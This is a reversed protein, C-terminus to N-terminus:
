LGTPPTDSPLNQGPDRDKRAAAQRERAIELAVKLRQSIDLEGDLYDESILAGEARALANV